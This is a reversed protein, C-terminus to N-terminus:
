APDLFWRHLPPTVDGSGDLELWYQGGSAFKVTGTAGVHVLSRQNVKVKDGVKIEQQTMKSRRKMALYM